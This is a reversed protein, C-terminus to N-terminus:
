EGAARRWLALYARVDDVYFAEAYRVAPSLTGTRWRGLARVLEPYDLSARQSAHASVAQLKREMQASIDVVVNPVVPTVFEYVACSFGLTTGEIARALLPTVTRHDPHIDLFSPLYVLDPQVERLVARLRAANAESATLARDPEDWFIVRDIGLIAAAEEEERRRVAALDARPRPAGAGGDTLVLSTVACGAERQKVLTGGVGIADDDPHPSLVLVRRGPPVDILRPCDLRATLAREWGAVMRLRRAVRRGRVWNWIM